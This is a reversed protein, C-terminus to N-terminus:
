NERHGKIGCFSCYGEFRTSTPRNNNGRHYSSTGTRYCNSAKHGYIGCNSCYGDIREQSSLNRQMMQPHAGRNVGRGRGRQSFMYRGQGRGRVVTTSLAKENTEGGNGKLKAEKNQLTNVVHDFDQLRNAQQMSEIVMEYIPPLGNTLVIAKDADSIEEINTSILKEAAENIRDVFAQVTENDKAKMGFFQSRLIMQNSESVQVHKNKLKEWATYAMECCLVLQMQNDELTFQIEALAQLDEEEKYERIQMKPALYKLLKKERLINQMHVSWITYGTGDYLKVQRRGSQTTHASMM